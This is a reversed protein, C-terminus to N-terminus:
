FGTKGALYGWCTCPYGAPVPVEMGCVPGAYTYCYPAPVFQAEVLRAGDFRDVQLNHEWLSSGDNDNHAVIASKQQIGGKSSQDNAEAAAALNSVALTTSVVFFVSLVHRTLVESSMSNKM